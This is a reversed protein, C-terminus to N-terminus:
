YVFSFPEFILLLIFRCDVISFPFLGPLSLLGIGVAFIALFRAVYHFVTSIKVRFFSWM